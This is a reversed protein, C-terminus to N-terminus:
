RVFILTSESAKAHPPAAADRGFRSNMENHIRIDVDIREDRQRQALADQIRNVVGDHRETPPHVVRPLLHLPHEVRKLDQSGSIRFLARYIQTQFLELGDEVLVRWTALSFPT